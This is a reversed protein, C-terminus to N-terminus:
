YSGAGTRATLWPEVIATHGLAALYMVLMQAADKNDDVILIKLPRTVSAPEVEARRPDDKPSVDSARPLSVTFRSGTGLGQSSCTVAGGHSEVLSKVLALGLGLGGSSRDSTREGQTFLDFASAVLEQSMGIGDDEVALVVQDDHVELKLLIDGGDHTYKAANTLLNGIVQVLRKYDGRVVAIAPPLHLILHHRRAHILHNTQEVADAVIDRVDVSVKELKVLGRTVRSVDLLDDVLGVMHTVQRKIINSTQKVMVPNLNPLNLLDAAAAIPALPNRLEHGLMALFDDKRRDNEKLAEETAKRGTIDVMAGIIHTARPGGDFAAFVVRGVSEIWRVGEHATHFRFEASYTGGNAPDLARAREAQVAARDDPDILRDHLDVTVLDEPQVGHMAHAWPSCDLVGTAIDHSWDGIGAADLGLLRREESARLAKNTRQEETIDRFIVVAGVIEGAPDRIPGGAFWCIIRAGSAQVIECVMDQTVEGKLVARAGPWEESAIPRGDLHYGSYVESYNRATTTHPERGWLADFMTNRFLIEGSPGTFVIALPAQELVARLRSESRQLLDAAHKRDTVDEYLVTLRDDNRPYVWVEYWRGLAAVEHEIREPRGARAIQDFREHWWPDLGPFVESAKRGLAQEVAIGFMREFAPNLTLYYQDVVRGEADRLLELECYGQGMTEFLTRYRTETQGSLSSSLRSYCAVSEALSQDIAENFRTMDEPATALASISRRAWLKLVSARLARFESVLQDISYGSGMRSEAHSEAATKGDARLGRGKSKEAQALHTQPTELDKVITDLMASAHGRLTEVDM